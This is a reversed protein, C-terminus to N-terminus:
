VAFAQAQHIDGRVVQITLTMAAPRSAKVLAATLTQFGTAPSLRVQFGCGRKYVNIFAKIATYHGPKRWRKEQEAM